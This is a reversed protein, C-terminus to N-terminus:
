RAGGISSVIAALAAAGTVMQERTSPPEPDLRPADPAGGGGVTGRRPGGARKAAGKQAALAADRGVAAVEAASRFLFRAELRTHKQLHWQSTVAYAALAILETEGFGDRMRAEVIDLTTKTCVAGKVPFGIAAVLEAHRELVRRAARRRDREDRPAGRPAGGENLAERSADGADDREGSPADADGTAVVIQSDPAPSSAIAEASSSPTFMVAPGDPGAHSSGSADDKTEGGREYSGQSNLSVDEDDCINRPIPDEYPSASRAIRISGSRGIRDPDSQTIRIPSIRYVRLPHSGVVRKGSPLEGGVDVIRSTIYGRAELERLARRVLRENIGTLHALTVTRPWAEGKSAAMAALQAYVRTDVSRLRAASIAQLASRTDLGRNEVPKPKSSALCPGVSRATSGPELHIVTGLKSPAPSPSTTSGTARETKHSM